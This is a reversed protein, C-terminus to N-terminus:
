RRCAVSKSDYEDSASFLYVCSGLEVFCEDIRRGPLGADCLHRSQGCTGKSCQVAGVDGVGVGDGRMGDTRRPGDGDAGGTGARIWAGDRIVLRNRSCQQSIGREHERRGDLVGGDHEWRAGRGDNCCRRHRADGARGDHMAGVDGVGVGDGRMRDARRTGDDDASGTGAWIWAGNGINFRHITQQLRRRLQNFEYRHFVISFYKRSARRGDSCRRSQRADGSKGFLASVDRIGVGDGQM